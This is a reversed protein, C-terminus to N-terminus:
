EAAPPAALVRAGRMGRSSSSGIGACFSIRAQRPSSGWSSCGPRRLDSSSRSAETPSPRRSCALSSSAGHRRRPHRLRRWLHLAERTTRHHRTRGFRSGLGHGFVGLPRRRLAKVLVAPLRRRHMVLILLILELDRGEQAPLRVSATNPPAQGARHPRPASAWAAARRGHCNHRFSRFRPAKTANRCPAVAARRNPAPLGAASSSKRCGQVRLRYQAVKSGLSRGSRPLLQYSVTLQDCVAEGNINSADTPNHRPVFKRHTRHAERSDAIRGDNGERRRPRDNNQTCGTIHTRLTARPHPVLAHDPANVGAPLCGQSILRGHGPDADMGTRGNGQCNM